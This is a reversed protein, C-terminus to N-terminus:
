NLKRYFTGTKDISTVSRYSSIDRQMETNCQSCMHGESSYESMRMSITEKHSCSPCVFPYDM